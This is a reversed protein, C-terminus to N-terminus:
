VPGPGRPGAGSRRSCVRGARSSRCALAYAPRALSRPRCALGLPRWVL